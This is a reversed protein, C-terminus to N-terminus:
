GRSGGMIEALGKKSYTCKNYREQKNDDYDYLIVDAVVDEKRERVNLVRVGHGSLRSFGNARYEMIEIAEKYTM